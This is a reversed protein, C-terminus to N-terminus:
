GTLGPVVILLPNKRSYIEELDCDEKNTDCVIWELLIQGKDSLVFVEKQAKFSRIM